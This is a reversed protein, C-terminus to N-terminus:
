NELGNCIQFKMLFTGYQFFLICCLSNTLYLYFKSFSGMRKHRIASYALIRYSHVQLLLLLACLQSELVWFAAQAHMNHM